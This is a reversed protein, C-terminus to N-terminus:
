IYGLDELQQKASASWDAQEAEAPDEPHTEFWEKLRSRLDDRVDATAPDDILDTEEDEITFLSEKEDSRLLRYGDKEVATVPETHVLENSHGPGYEDEEFLIPNVRQTIVYDRESERLNVGTMGETDAGVDELLTRTIDSHTVPADTNTDLNWGEAVLPVHTLGRHLTKSHFVTNREGFLDGHDATVIFITDEYRKRLQDILRGVMLDTYYLETDYMIRLAAWERNSLPLGDAMLQHMEDHIRYAIDAGETSTLDWEALRDEFQNMFGHPPYYPSHPEIYQVALFFPAEAQRTTQLAIDNIMGTVSHKETERSLGASHTRARVLHRLVNKAGATKLLQKPSSSLFCFEDFGNALNTAPAFHTNASVGITEYGVDSLRSAITREDDGLKGEAPAIGHEWPHLGTLLSGMSSSSTVSHAHADTFQLGRRGLDRINPTIVHEGHTPVRDGRASDLVLLVINPQSM